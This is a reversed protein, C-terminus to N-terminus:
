SPAAFFLHTTVVCELIGWRSLALDAPLLAPPRNVDVRLLHGLVGSCVAEQMQESLQLPAAAGLSGPGWVPGPFLRWGTRGAAEGPHLADRGRAGLRVPLM